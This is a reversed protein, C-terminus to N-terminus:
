SHRTEPELRRALPLRHGGRAVGLAGREQGVDELRLGGHGRGVILILARREPEPRRAGLELAGHAFHPLTGSGGDRAQFAAEQSAAPVFPYVTLSTVRVYAM